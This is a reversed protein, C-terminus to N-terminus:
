EPLIAYMATELEVSDSDGKALHTPSHEYITCLHHLIASAETALVQLVDAILSKHLLFAGECQPVQLLNNLANCVRIRM